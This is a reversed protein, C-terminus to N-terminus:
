ETFVTKISNTVCAICLLGLSLTEARNSNKSKFPKVSNHHILTIVATITCLILRYINNSILYYANFLLKRFEIVGEWSTHDDRYPGEYADLIVQSKESVILNQEGEERKTFCASRMEKCSSSKDFIFFAGIWYVLFPLPFSCALM